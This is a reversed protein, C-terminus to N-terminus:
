NIAFNVALMERLISLRVVEVHGFHRQLSSKWSRYVTVCVYYLSALSASDFVVNCKTSKALQRCRPCRKCDMIVKTLNQLACIINKCWATIPANYCNLSIMIVIIIIIVECSVVAIPPTGCREWKIHSFIMVWESWLIGKSVIRKHKM